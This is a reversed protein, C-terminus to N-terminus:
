QYCKSFVPKTKRLVVINRPYTGASDTEGLSVIPDVIKLTVNASWCKMGEEDSPKPGGLKKYDADSGLKFECFRRLFAPEPPMDCEIAFSLDGSDSPEMGASGTLKIQGSLYIEGDPMGGYRDYHDLSAKEKELDIWRDSSDRLGCVASLRLGRPPTVELNSLENGCYCPVPREWRESLENSLAVCKEATSRAESSIAALLLLMMIAFRKM